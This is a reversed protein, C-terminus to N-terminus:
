ELWHREQSPGSWEIIRVPNELQLIVSEPCEGHDLIAASLQEERL